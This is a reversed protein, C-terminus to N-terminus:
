ITIKFTGENVVTHAIKNDQFYKVVTPKIKATDKSHNGAGPIVILEKLGKSKATAIREKLFEMAPDVFLGHLDITDIGNGKNVFDFVKLSAEKQYKEMNAQHVKGQDSLQKAEAKQGADFCKKAKDYCDGRAKAEKEVKENL